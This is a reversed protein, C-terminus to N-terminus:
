LSNHNARKIPNGNNLAHNIENLILNKDQPLTGQLNLYNSIHNARIIIPSDINISLNEIIVKIEEIIELGNAEIFEKREAQKGLITNPLLSLCLIGLYTPSTKQIVYATKLAHNKSAIKDKGALGAIITVSTQFGAEKAKKIGIMFEEATNGKNVKTLIENDGSELGIYILKIGIEKLKKLEEPTKLILSKPSAYISIKENEPFKENLYNAIELLTSTKIILADGDALFIRRVFQRQHRFFDIEKKIQEISKIKFKKENYMNCFTCKNHSCGLTVQIILSNAESPPRYLPYDYIDFIM